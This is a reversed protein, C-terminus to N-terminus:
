QVFTAKEEEGLSSIVEDTQMEGHLQLIRERQERWNLCTCRRMLQTDYQPNEQAKRVIEAATKRTEDWAKGLDFADTFYVPLEQQRSAPFNNNIVKLIGDRKSEETM